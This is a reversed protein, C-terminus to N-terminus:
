TDPALSKNIERASTSICVNLYDNFFVLTSILFPCHLSVPLMPCVFCLFDFCICLVIPYYCLTFLVHDRRCVVPPLSSGFKTGFLLQFDRTPPTAVYIPSIIGTRRGGGKIKGYVHVCM